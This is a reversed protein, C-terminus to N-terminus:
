LNADTELGGALLPGRLGRLNMMSVPITAIVANYEWGSSPVLRLAIFTRIGFGGRPFRCDAIPWLRAGLKAM